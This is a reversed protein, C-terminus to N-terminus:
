FTVAEGAKLDKTKGFTKKGELFEIQKGSGKTSFDKVPAAIGERVKTGADLTVDTIKTPEYNLSLHNKIQKPTMGAIESPDVLWDGDMNEQKTRQIKHRDFLKM